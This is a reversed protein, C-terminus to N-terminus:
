SRAASAIQEIKLRPQLVKTRANSGTQFWVSRAMNSRPRTKVPEVKVAILKDSRGPAHEAVLYLVSERDGPADPLSQIVYKLGEPLEDRIRVQM